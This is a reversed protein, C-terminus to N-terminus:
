RRDFRVPTQVAATTEAVPASPSVTLHAGVARAGDQPHRLLFVRLRSHGQNLTRVDDGDYYEVDLRASPTLRQAIIPWPLEAAQRLATVWSAATHDRGFQISRGGWAQNGGDFGAYKILWEAREDALQSFVEPRLLQTEPLGRALAAQHAPDIAALRNLVAPLRAAALVAKSELYTVPPNLFTAGAAQWIAMRHIAEPAFCDFYGFRFVVADGLTEPWDGTWLYPEMGYARIRERLDANWEAPRTLLGYVPPEWLRGAALDDALADLPRDLLVRGTAGREALARCLALLDFLFESWQATAAIILPRGDLLQALRDAVDTELGYAVQM